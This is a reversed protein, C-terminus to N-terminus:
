GFIVIVFIAPKDGTDVMTSALDYSPNIGVMIEDDSKTRGSDCRERSRQPPSGNAQTFQGLHLTVIHLLQENRCASVGGGGCGLGLGHPLKM